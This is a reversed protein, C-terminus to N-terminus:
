LKFGVSIGFVRHKNKDDASSNSGSQLKALGHGYQASFVLFKTEVGAIANLGYDFRKMIGYGAGEEYDLTSPDDDSWRINEESSFSAGLFKGDTKNKGAIGAALYPGGGIFFRIPAAPTKFILNVPIEVYMPHTTARFYTPDSVSGSQTKSGKGTILIGPQFYFFPAVKIDGSFGAHFSTLMSHDDVDGDNTVSINALNVGAKVIQANATVTTIVLLLLSLRITKMNHNKHKMDIQLLGAMFLAVSLCTFLRHDTLLLLPFNHFFKVSRHCYFFLCTSIIFHHPYKKHQYMVSLM